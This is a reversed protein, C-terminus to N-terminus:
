KPFKKTKLAKKVMVNRGKEWQKQIKEGRRKTRLFSICSTAEAALWLPPHDGSSRREKKPKKATKRKEKDNYDKKSRRWQRRSTSTMALDQTRTFVKPYSSTRTTALTWSFAYSASLLLLLSSSPCKSIGRRLYMGVLRNGSM